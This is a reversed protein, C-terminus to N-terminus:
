LRDPISHVHFRPPQSPLSYKKASKSEDLMLHSVEDPEPRYRILAPTLDVKNFQAEETQVKNEREHFRARLWRIKAESGKLLGVFVEPKLLGFATPITAKSDALFTQCRRRGFAILRDADQRSKGTSDLYTAAVSSLMKLWGPISQYQNHLAKQLTLLFKACIATDQVSQVWGNTLCGLTVLLLQDMTVRSSQTNVISTALVSKGYYQLHSLPLSWIIGLDNDENQNHLGITVVGGPAILPDNQKVIRTHSHLVELDPYLHWASLALLVEGSKVAQPIGIVCNEMFRLAAKWAEMVVKYVDPGSPLGFGLNDLIIRLQTQKSSFAIDASELWARYTFTLIDRFYCM